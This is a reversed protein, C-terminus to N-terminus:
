APPRDRRVDGARRARGQRAAAGPTVRAQDRAERAAKTRWDDADVILPKRGEFLLAHAATGHDLTRRGAARPRPEATPACDLRAAPVPQPPHPRFWRSLSPAHAIQDAHYNEATM